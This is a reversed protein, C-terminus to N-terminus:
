RRFLQSWLGYSVPAQSEKTKDSGSENIKTHGGYPTALLCIRENDKAGM